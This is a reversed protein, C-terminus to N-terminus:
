DLRRVAIIPLNQEKLRKVAEQLPEVATVMHFGNAHLLTHPDTMIGVHGTWFILDGRRLPGDIPADRGLALQMDSDRPAAHGAAALALQVLGSCDIGTATKGGWLYPVGSFMEAVAVFDDAPADLPRLHKTLVYGEETDPLRARLGHRYLTDRHQSLNIVKAFTESTEEFGTVTVMAGLPLKSMFYRKITPEEYLIGHLASVMHTPPEAPADVLDASQVYGVYGDVASQVWSWADKVVLDDPEVPESDETDFVDVPEGFMFETDLASFGPSVECRTSPAIVVKRTPYAYRPRDVRGKLRADALDDRIAHLRHDLTM